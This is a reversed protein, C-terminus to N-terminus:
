YGEKIGSEKLVQQELKTCGRELFTSWSGGVKEIDRHNDVLYKGIAKMARKSTRGFYCDFTLMGIEPVFILGLAKPSWYKKFDILSKIKDKPFLDEGFYGLGAKFSEYEFIIDSESYFRYKKPVKNLELRANHASINQESCDKLKITTFGGM